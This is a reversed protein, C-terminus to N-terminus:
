TLLLFDSDQRFPYFVNGNRLQERKGVLIILSNDPISEILKDRKEQAIM